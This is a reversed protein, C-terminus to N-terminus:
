ETTESERDEDTESRGLCGTETEKTKRKRKTWYNRYLIEDGGDYRLKVPKMSRAVDERQDLGRDGPQQSNAACQVLVNDVSLTLLALTQGACVYGSSSNPNQLTRM